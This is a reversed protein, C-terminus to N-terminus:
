LTPTVSSNLYDPTNTKDGSMNNADMNTQPDRNKSCDQSDAAHRTQTDCKM